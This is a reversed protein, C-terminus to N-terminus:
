LLLSFLHAYVTGKVHFTCIILDSACVLWLVHQRSQVQWFDQHSLLPNSFPLFHPFAQNCWFVWLGSDSYLCTASINAAPLFAGPYRSVLVISSLSCGSSKLLLGTSVLLVILSVFLYCRTSSQWLCFVFTQHLLYSLFVSTRYRFCGLHGCPHKHVQM